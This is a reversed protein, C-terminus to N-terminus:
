KGKSSALGKERLVTLVRALERRAQRLKMPSETQGTYRKLRLRFVEDRLEALKRGLEGGNMERLERAEM